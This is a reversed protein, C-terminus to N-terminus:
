CLPIEEPSLGTDVRLSGQEAFSKVAPICGAIAQMAEWCYSRGLDGAVYVISLDELCWQRLLTVEGPRPQNDVQFIKMSDVFKQIGVLQMTDLPRIRMRGEPEASFIVDVHLVLCRLQPCRGAFLLVLEPTLKEAFLELRKLGWNAFSGLIEKLDEFRFAVASLTIDTVNPFVDVLLSGLTAQNPHPNHGVQGIWGYLSRFGIHLSTIGPFKMFEGDRDLVKFCQSLWTLHVEHGLYPHYTDYCVVGRFMLHTLLPHRGLFTTLSTTDEIHRSDFPLRLSLWRLNPLHICNLIPSLDGYHGWATFRLEELSDRTSNIVLVLQEMYGISVITERDRISSLHLQLNLSRLSKLGKLTDGVFLKIFMLADMSLAIDRLNWLPLLKWMDMVEALPYPRPSQGHLPMDIDGWAQPQPVPRRFHIELNTVNFMMGLAHVYLEKRQAPPLDQTPGDVVRTEYSVEFTPRRRSVRSHVFAPMFRSKSQPPLIATPSPTSINRQSSQVQEVAERVAEPHIILTRTRQANSPDRLREAKKVFKWPDPDGFEVVAYKADVALAYLARNVTILRCLEERPLYSAIIAWLETPLAGRHKRGVKSM